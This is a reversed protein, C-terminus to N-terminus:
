RSRASAVPVAGGGGGSSYERPTQVTVPAAVGNLSEATGRRAREFHLLRLGGRRPECALRGPRLALMVNSCNTPPVACAGSRITSHAAGSISSAPTDRSRMRTTSLPRLAPGNGRLEYEPLLALEPHHGERLERRLDEREDTPPRQGLPQGVPGPADNMAPAVSYTVILVDSPEMTVGAEYVAATVASGNLTVSPVTGTTGGTGNNLM